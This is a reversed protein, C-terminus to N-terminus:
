GKRDCNRPRLEAQIDHRVADIVRTWDGLDQQRYLRASPYWPSDNRGLLWRWDANQALMIWVTKGMAGALHAVSNDTTVVLDMLDILAATDAFDKIEDGYFAIRGVQRFPAIDRDRLTKQLCIWDVDIDILPLIENLDTSRQNDNFQAASGSWVLGIRPRVKPPLRASWQGRLDVDAGVAPLPAPITDITTGFALPLSHLPCHYDFHPPVDHPGITEIGPNARRMLRLLPEQVSFIVKAGLADACKIFRSFQLTDGFGQEWYVFLTKGAIDEHGLWLPRPYDRIGFPLPLRKRWEYEHWGRKLDGLLLLCLALNWHVHPLGPDLALSREFSELAALPDMYQLALGRTSHAEASDPRIALARECSALAEDTRGLWVLAMARHLHAPALDPQIALAQDASALAHRFFRLRTLAQARGGYAKAMGPDLRIADDFSAVAEAFRSAALYALGLDYHAAATESKSALSKRIFEVAEAPRRTRLSIVGLAHLAQPHEAEQKLLVNFLREARPLDNAQLHAMADDFLRSADSHM